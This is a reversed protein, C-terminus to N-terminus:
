KATEVVKWTPGEAVVEQYLAALRDSMRRLRDPELKALDKSQKIDDALNYLEFTTLRAKKIAQMDGAKLSAGAGPVVADTHALIVWDGERM